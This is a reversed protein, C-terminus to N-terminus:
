IVKGGKKLALKAANVEAEPTEIYYTFERDVGNETWVVTWSTKKSKEVKEEKVPEVKEVITEIDVVKKAEAEERLRKAKTLHHEPKEKKVETM